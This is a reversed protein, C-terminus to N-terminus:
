HFARHVETLSRDSKGKHRRDHDDGEPQPYKLIGGCLRCMFSRDWARYGKPVTWVNHRFTVGLIFVLIGLWSYGFWTLQQNFTGSARLFMDMYGLMFELVLLGVLGGFVIKWYSRKHPPSVQQSLRSQIEGTTTFKEFGLNTGSSGVLVGWGRSRAKLDSLGEVYVLSLKKFEMSGCKPCEIKM